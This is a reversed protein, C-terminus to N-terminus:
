HKASPAQLLVADILDARSSISLQHDQPCCSCQWDWRYVDDVNQGATGLFHVSDVEFDHPNTM